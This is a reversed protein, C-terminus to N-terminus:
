DGTDMMELKNKPAIPRSDGHRVMNMTCFAVAAFFASYPFLTRYGVYEMLAGSLIPTLIQAAMSFTYYYGTYKGVDSGKAMEVVMPYSNVNIAAWATGILVLFVTLVPHYSTLLFAGCFSAFMLVLGLLITKRRGIKSALFGVPIFAIVAAVTAILQNSAFGGGAIKLFDQAYKSFATTVANYAMFWMFISILIFILSRKVDPPLKTKEGSGTDEEATGHGNVKEMEEVLKNEKVSLALIVVSVVMLAAVIAFIPLYDPKGTKPVMVAILGLSVAGGIAGMLNIVANAKSRLPKPTVDPMLAVAPSRYTGMFVLSFFLAIIFMPLIGKNDAFPMFMMSVVALATGGLIFPMRKGIPTKVKDSLAGFLPLMFLALVNDMAMVVGAVTDGINFTKKLILPVLSDYIQWFACISLFALGIIFTRRYNLKM